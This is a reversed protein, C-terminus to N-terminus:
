SEVNLLSCSEVNLWAVFSKDLLEARNELLNMLANKRYIKECAYRINLSPDVLCFANLKNTLSDKNNKNNKKIFIIKM